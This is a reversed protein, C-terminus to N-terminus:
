DSNGTDGERWIGSAIEQHLDVMCPTFMSTHNVGKDVDVKVLM